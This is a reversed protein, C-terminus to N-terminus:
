FQSPAKYRGLRIGLTKSTEAKKRALHKDAEIQQTLAHQQVTQGDVTVSSPATANEAIKEASIKADEGM